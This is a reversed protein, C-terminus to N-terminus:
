RRGGPIVGLRTTGLRWDAGERAEECRLRVQRATFRVGTPATLTYPGYETEADTPFIAGFLRAEVDGLTKEDPVIRQVRMVQDGDGLEIPGSEIYPVLNLNGDPTISASGAEVLVETTEAVFGKTIFPGSLKLDSPVYGAFNVQDMHIANLVTSGNQMGMGCVTGTLPSADDLTLVDVGDLSVIVNVHGGLGAEVRMGMVYTTAIYSGGGGVYSDQLVGDRYLDIQVAGGGVWPAWAARYGSGTQFAGNDHRLILTANNILTNSLVLTCEAEDSSVGVAKALHWGGDNHGGPVNLQLGNGNIVLSSNTVLSWTFDASTPAHSQLFTGDSDTFGDAFPGQSVSGGGYIGPAGAAYTADNATLMPIDNVLGTITAGQVRITVKVAEDLMESPVEVSLPAFIDAGAADLGKLVFSPTATDIGFYYGARGGAGQMRAGVGGFDTGTGTTVKASMSVAYDGSGTDGDLTYAPVTLNSSILEDDDNFELGGGIEKTWEGDSPDPDHDELATGESDELDDTFRTPEPVIREGGAVEHAYAHGESDFMVPNPVAGRDLACTRGLKGTTWHNERYNYVVYRDNEDSQGSPYFWWIESFESVPSAFVKSAQQQNFDDFVYDHVECPVPKVFGDYSYFNDRGMWLAATDVIAVAQPSIIGCNDGEQKFSFVFDGGIYTMSHLDADTWILTQAKTRRGCMIRGNTSLTFDGATNVDSADWDDLTAQSAWAVLRVDNNAGLAVIFREPAIVVGRNPEPSDGGAVVARASTNGTWVYIRGGVTPCAVLVDGFADLQWTDADTLTAALPAKGVGYLDAGYIGTGYDGQGGAGGTLTTDAFMLHASTETTALANGASGISRAEFALTTATLTTAAVSPNVVTDSGYDTGAAGTRNVAAKLNALSEAADAGVKVQNATTTVSAKFTYTIAGITVTEDASVNVADSTLLGTAKTGSSAVVAGPTFDEPTIDYATGNQIVYLKETTGVAILADGAASRWGLAARPIGELAALPTGDEASAVRWGQVPRIAGEYFRVLNADYWRGKAQYRTGNRYLGPPLKLAILQELM